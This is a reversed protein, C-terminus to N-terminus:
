AIEPPPEVTKPQALDPKLDDLDHYLGAPPVQFAKSENESITTLLQEFAKAGTLTETTVNSEMFGSRVYLLVQNFRADHSISAWWAALEKQELFTEKATM